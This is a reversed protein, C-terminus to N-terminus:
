HLLVFCGSARAIASHPLVAGNHKSVMAVNNTRFRRVVFIRNVVDGFGCESGHRMRAAFLSLDDTLEAFVSVQCQRKDCFAVTLNETKDAPQVLNRVVRLETTGFDQAEDVLVNTYLPEIRDLHSGLASTLGLYDIVGVDRM